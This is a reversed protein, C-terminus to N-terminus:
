LSAINADFSDRSMTMSYYQKELKKIRNHFILNKVSMEIRWGTELEGRWFHFKSLDKFEFWCNLDM